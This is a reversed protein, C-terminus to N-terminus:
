GNYAELNKFKEHHKRNYHENLTKEILNSLETKEEYEVLLQNWAFMNIHYTAVSLVDDVNSQVKRQYEEESFEKHIKEEIANLEKFAEDRKYFNINTNEKVFAFLADKFDNETIAKELEYTPVTSLEVKEVKPVIKFPLLSKIWDLM